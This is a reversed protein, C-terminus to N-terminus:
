KTESRGASEEAPTLKLEDHDDIFANMPRDDLYIAVGGYGGSRLQRASAVELIAAAKRRDTEPVNYVSFTKRRGDPLVYYEHIGITHAAVPVPPKDSVDLHQPGEERVIELNNDEDVYVNVPDGDRFIAIGSYGGARRGEASLVDLLAAVKDPETDPIRYSGLIERTGDPRPVYEEIQFVAM